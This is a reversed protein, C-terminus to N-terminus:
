SENNGQKATAIMDFYNHKKINNYLINRHLRGSGLMALCHKEIQDNNIAINNWKPNDLHNNNFVLNFAM